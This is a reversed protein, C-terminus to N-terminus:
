VRSYRQVGYGAARTYGRPLRRAAEWSQHPGAPIGTVPCPCPWGYRRTGRTNLMLGAWPGMFPQWGLITKTFGASQAWQPATTASGTLVGAGPTWGGLRTPAQQSYSHVPAYGVIGSVPNPYIGARDPCVRTGHCGAPYLVDGSDTGLIRPYTAPPRIIIGAPRTYGQTPTGPPKFIAPYGAPDLAVRSAQGISLIHTLIFQQHNIHSIRSATWVNNEM